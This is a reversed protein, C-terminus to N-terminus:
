APRVGAVVLYDGLLRGVPTFALRTQRELGIGFRKALAPVPAAGAIVVDVFGANEFLRRLEGTTFGHYPIRGDPGVFAGDRRWGSHGLWKYVSVAAVGSPVLVRFFDGVSEERAAHSPLHQIVGASLVRDVSRDAVPLSRVDGVRLEVREGQAGTLRRRAIELSQASHDVGIVSATRELLWPLQAGTGCGADLVRHTPLLALVRELCADMAAYEWALGARHEDYTEAQADRVAREKAIAEEDARAPDRM